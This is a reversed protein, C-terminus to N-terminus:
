VVLHRKPKKPGNDFFSRDIISLPGFAGGVPDEIPESMALLYRGREM